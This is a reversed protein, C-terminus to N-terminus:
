SFWEGISKYQIPCEELIAKFEDMSFNDGYENWVTVKRDLFQGPEMVWNFSCCSSVGTKRRPAESNFGLERGAASHAIGENKPKKGCQPCQKYWESDYHVKAEGGKCLTLGCDWCYLGAASRKGIHYKPDMANASKWGRVYFNTGM